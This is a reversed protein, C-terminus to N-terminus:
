LRIKVKRKKNTDLVWEIISYESDDLYKRIDNTYKCENFDETIYKEVKERTSFIGVVQEEYGLYDFVLAYVKM